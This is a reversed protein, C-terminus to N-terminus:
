AFTCAQIGVVAIGVGATVVTLISLPDHRTPNHPNMNRAPLTFRFLESINSNKM